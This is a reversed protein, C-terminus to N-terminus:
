PTNSPLSYIVFFLTFSWLSSYVTCQHKYPLLESIELNFYWLSLLALSTLIEKSIFFIFSLSFLFFLSKRLFFFCVFLCNFIIEKYINRSLFWSLSNDSRVVFLCNFSSVVFLCNFSSTEDNLKPVWVHCVQARLSAHFIYKKINNISFVVSKFILFSFINSAIIM